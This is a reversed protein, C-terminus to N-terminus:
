GVVGVLAVIAILALVGFLMSLAYLRAFGSQWRAVLRGVLGMATVGGSLSRDVVDRDLVSLGGATGESPRVFLARYLADFGAGAQSFRALATDGFRAGPAGDRAAYIWWGIGIGVAVAVVSALVLLWEVLLSPHHFAVPALDGVTAPELWDHIANPALFEPLGVYGAVVSFFALIALPITMVAPSEHLHRKADAALREKGEFVVWYWRFMYCATLVATGLLVAYLVKAGYDELLTSNFTAALIADKSFFGSLFPVGAIALTAILGTIATIRMHRRLGGMKRVDQEGGLAHIVSGAGMFLLAKFFAHTFVHFIGAWYAGVGVAAFMFGLQSVTSYALIRKIDTQGLAAFAAVLATIAGIWAVAASADPASAFIPAARAILYVGATVMTAAHILASVPTPGAMADPLWVQLPLQASKGTAGLLYLLALWTLTASGFVMNVAAANVEAINLTGFTAVTLFMALLFGVDGIRNVIFAKRAADANEKRGYWFGILLYSCVGVGEWGVFMLLFSDAMVLVLMAAVFLNLGMFYRSFGDDGKMYGISYIHILTGVGTIILMMLISLTDIHFGLALDFGGAALYDWLEVVVTRDERGMLVFFGLLSLVFGAGVAATGVVGAAAGRLSRGFLGNIVAGALALLPALATWAVLDM